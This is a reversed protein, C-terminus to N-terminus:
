PEGRMWKAAHCERHQSSLGHRVRHFPDGSRWPSWSPWNKRYPPHVIRRESPFRLQCGHQRGSVVSVSPCCPFDCSLNNSTIHSTVCPSGRSFVISRRGRKDAFAGWRSISAERWSIRASSSGSRVLGSANFSIMVSTRFYLFCVSFIHGHPYLNPCISAALRLLCIRIIGFSVARYFVNRITSDSRDVEDMNLFLLKRTQPLLVPDLRTVVMMSRVQTRGAHMVDANIGDYVLEHFLAQRFIFVYTSVLRNSCVVRSCRVTNGSTRTRTSGEQGCYRCGGWVSSKAFLTSSKQVKARDKSQLFVLVPPRLGEQVLQRIALLKGEERGVYVLRQDINVAGANDTGVNLFVPDRLVSEALDKVQNSVVLYLFSVFGTTDSQGLPSYRSSASKVVFLTSCM